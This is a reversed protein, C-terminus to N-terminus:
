IEKLNKLLNDDTDFKCKEAFLEMGLLAFIFMFLFLLGAYYTLAKLSNITNNLLKALAGWLRALKIVRLLRLARFANLAEGASGINEAPITWTIVWDILSVIVVVADFINFGDKAYNRVGLGILKLVMELTFAWTFFENCLM